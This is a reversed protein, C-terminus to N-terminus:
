EGYRDLRQEILANLDSPRGGRPPWQGGCKDEYRGGTPGGASEGHGADAPGPLLPLWYGLLEDFVLEDGPRDAPDDAPDDVPRWLLRTIVMLPLLSLALGGIQLIAQALIPDRYRQGALRSREAELQEQLRLWDRRAQADQVVLESAARNVEAQMRRLERDGECGAVALLLGPLWRVAASAASAVPSASV